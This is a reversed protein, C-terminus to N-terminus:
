GRNLWSLWRRIYAATKKGAPTAREGTAQLMGLYSLARCLSWYVARAELGPDDRFDYNEIIQRWGEYPGLYLLFGLDYAPDGLGADGWDLVGTILRRDESFLLHEPYLDAHILRLKKPMKPPAPKRGEIFDEFAPRLDPPAATLIQVRDKQLETFEDSEEAGPLKGTQLLETPTGHLQSLFRGLAPALAVFQTQTLNGDGAEGLLKAYGFTPYPFIETAQAMFLPTPIPLTIRGSLTKLLSAEAQVKWSIELRKPVKFIYRGNVEYAESDWGENLRVCHIPGLEPFRGALFTQLAEPDLVRDAEWEKAM